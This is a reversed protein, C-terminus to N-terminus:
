YIGKVEPDLGERETRRLTELRRKQLGGLTPWKRRKIHFLGM